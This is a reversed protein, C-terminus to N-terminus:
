QKAASKLPPLFNEMLLIESFGSGVIFLMKKGDPSWSPFELSPKVPAPTGFKIPIDVPKGGGSVSAMQIKDRFGSNWVIKSGDPSWSPYRMGGLAVQRLAGTEMNLVMLGNLKPDKGSKYFALEKGDPSWAPSNYNSDEDGLTVQRANEGDADAVYIQWGKNPQTKVFALRKGDPSCSVAGMVEWGAGMIVPKREKTAMSISYIGIGTEQREGIYIHDNDPAWALRRGSGQRPKVRTVEQQSSGDASMVCLTTNDSDKSTYAIRKGDPSWAPLYGQALKVAEGSPLNTQPDIAASYVYDERKSRFFLLRGNDSMPNFSGGAFDSMDTKVVFPEGSPKGDAVSIGWLDKRGLNRNSLFLLTKGGPAWVPCYGDSIRVPEGGEVPVVLIRTPSWATYAIYKSDPSFRADVDGGNVERSPGGGVPLLRLWSHAGTSTYTAPDLGYLIFRGDKSWDYVWGKVGTRQEDGSDLSLIRIESPDFHDGMRTYAIRKGDASWVPNNAPEKSVQKDAGSALDYVWLFTIYHPAKEAKLYAVRNGDPALSMERSWADLNLERLIIGAGEHPAAAVPTLAALRARAQAVLERQDPYDRVVQEYAKRAERAQTEGLKEYCQGMAVLAKAVAARNKPYRSLVDKYIQIAAEPQGDVLEKQQARQLLMEAQDNKQNVGPLSAAFLALLSAILITTLRRQNTM